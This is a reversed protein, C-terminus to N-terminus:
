RDSVMLHMSPRNSIILYLENVQDLKVRCHSLSETLVFITLLYQLSM